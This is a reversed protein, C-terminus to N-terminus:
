INLGQLVGSTVTFGTFNGFIPGPSLTIGVLKSETGLQDSMAVASLVTENIINIGLYNEEAKSALFVDGAEYFQGGREGRINESEAM